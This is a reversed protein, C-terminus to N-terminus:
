GGPDVVARLAGVNHHFFTKPDVIAFPIGADRLALGAAIGGYGAGVVLTRSRSAVDAPLPGSSWSQGM